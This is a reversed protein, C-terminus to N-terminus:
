SNESLNELQLLNQFKFVLKELRGAQKEIENIDNYISNNETMDEKILACYGTIGTLPQNLEHGLSNALDVVSQLKNKEAIEASIMSNELRLGVWFAVISILYAESVSYAEPDACSVSIVGRVQDGVLFPAAIQAKKFIGQPGLAVSENKSIAMVVRESLNTYVVEKRSFAQEIIENDEPRIKRTKSSDADKSFQWEILNSSADHIGAYFADTRILNAIRPYIGRFIDTLSPGFNSSAFIQNLTVLYSRLKQNDAGTSNHPNHMVLFM